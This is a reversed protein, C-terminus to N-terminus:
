VWGRIEPETMLKEMKKYEIKASDLLHKMMVPEDNDAAMFTANLAINRINGGAVGLQGLRRYNLEKTPTQAPFMNRWIQSRAEKDPFSFDIIFRLRRVFARDIDNKMNTTLIALGKYAEMQQLLYSITMNAYHDHSDKVETRKSFLADAEDFLLIVSARQAAEFIQQLNKETEGIYKSLITSLDIRYIDLKLKNAIVEAAMTKGTGSTGQFLASIGLGRRSKRAFGWREYVKLRKEVQTIIRQLGNKEAEPLILDEWTAVTEIREALQDLQPRSTTRCIYWLQDAISPNNGEMESNGKIQSSATIIAKSSLNFHSVLQEVKGNMEDAIEGLSEQWIALQELRTLHPIDYTISHRKPFPSLPIASIEPPQPKIINRIRSDHYPAGAFYHLITEDIKLASKTLTQSQSLEILQWYRLPSEPTLANWDANPFIELALSFTPYARQPNGCAKICLYELNPDIEMGICFLLINQEFDSLNFTSCLHSLTPLIPHPFQINDTEAIPQNNLSTIHNELYQRIPQIATKLSQYNSPHTNTTTTSQM